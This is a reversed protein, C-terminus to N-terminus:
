ARRGSSARVKLFAMIWELSWKGGHWNWWPLMISAVAILAPVDWEFLTNVGTTALSLLMAVALLFLGRVTHDPLRPAPNSAVIGM